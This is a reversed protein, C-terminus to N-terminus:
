KYADFAMQNLKDALGKYTLAKDLLKVNEVTFVEKPETPKVEVLESMLIQPRNNLENSAYAQNGEFWYYKCDGSANFKFLSSLLTKSEDSELMDNKIVSDGRRISEIKQQRNM